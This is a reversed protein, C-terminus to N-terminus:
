APGCRATAWGLQLFLGVALSFGVIAGFFVIVFIVGSTYSRRAFVSLEVLPTGGTAPDCRARCSRLRRVRGGVRRADGFAWAPWGLERGQVLPFVLLSCAPPPSCRARCTWAPAPPPAPAAPCRRAPRRRPRVRGAPLNIAFVMRWGTGFIDADILAGAVIPGLITSLGIVPGLAAFAKGIEQPPFLDRILGFCQPIMVAAFLGQM